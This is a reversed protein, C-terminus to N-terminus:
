QGSGAASDSGQRSLNVEDPTKIYVDMQQGVYLSTRQDKVRYIVELVRTDVRETSDGTLSKKPVVYPEFRVFELPIRISGNGRPSAAAPAGGRVRWADHEDVDVRVHLPTVSGLIMLPESLPGCQAFQGLRVKNQLIVGAIPARMTLRDINTEVMKVQAEAQAVESKAVAIDPAWAGAKLLKLQAEVEALRAQAAKYALRRRQVDEDRVARKDTVSEILRVQVEADALNAQAERVREEAPQVDEARPEQELKALRAQAEELASRKVQQDARLDRDDLSFLKQGQGVRDGAKVYLQTVMGSVACS